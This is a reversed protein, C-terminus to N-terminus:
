RSLYNTLFVATYPDNVRILIIYRVRFTFLAVYQGKERSGDSSMRTVQQKNAHNQKPISNLQVYLFHSLSLYHIVM